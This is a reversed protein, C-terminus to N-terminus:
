MVTVYKYSFIYDVKLKKNSRQDDIFAETREKFKAIKM